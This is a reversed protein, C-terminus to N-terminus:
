YSEVDVGDLQEFDATNKTVVTAGTRKAVAGILLDGALSNIKDQNVDSDQHFDAELEGALFADEVRFPLIRIWGFTTLIEERDCAGQLKRGTAIEKINIVTTVFENEDENQSLYDAVADKGAWYHILFTTDLLKM